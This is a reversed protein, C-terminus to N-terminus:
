SPNTEEDIESEITEVENAADAQSQRRARMADGILIFGGILAWITAITFLLQGRQLPEAVIVAGLVVEFLGLFFSSWSWRRDSDGDQKFGGFMHLLGTLIIILGVVTFVIGEGVWGMVFIRGLMMIGALIGIIGAALALGRSREGSAGWRLSIVGSTFWFLGMFNGLIFRSKDPYFVLVVGLTIALLGRLLTVWFKVTGKNAQLTQRM